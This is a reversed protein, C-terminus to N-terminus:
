SAMKQRVLKRALDHWMMIESINMGRMESPHWHFVAALNAM